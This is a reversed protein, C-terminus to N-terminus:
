YGFAAKQYEFTLKVANVFSVGNWDEKCDTYNEPIKKLVLGRAELEKRLEEGKVVVIIKGNDFEYDELLYCDEGAWKENLHNNRTVIFMNKIQESKLANKTHVIYKPMALQMMKHRSVSKDLYVDPYAESIGTEQEIKYMETIASGVASMPRVDTAFRLKVYNVSLSVLLCCGVFVFNWKMYKTNKQSLIIIISLVIVALIATKILASSINNYSNADNGYRGTDFLLASDITNRWSYEVGNVYDSLWTGCYVILLIGSVLSIIKIKLRFREIRCFLYYLAIFVLISYMPAIYRSYLFRDARKVKEGIVFKYNSGFSFLAGMAVTGFYTLVAYVNIVAEQATLNKKKAVFCVIGVLACVIGLVALGFTGLYTNFLWGTVNKVITEVGEKTFINAYKEYNVNEMTNKKIGSGWINSKFYHTLKKDVWLWVVLNLIYSWMCIGKKKLFFRVMCVIMTVAIVFVIGRSHCMYMYVCSFALLGSMVIRRVTKEEDMAALLIYLTVWAIVILMVDSRAYLSYLVTAPIVSVCLSLLACKSKDEEKLHKRLINYAMVPIIAVFLGNVFMMLKYILYPNSVFKLIPAYFVAQGYKYFYGGTSNVWKNWNNGALFAANAVTGTEDYIYSINLVSGLVVMMALVLVYMLVCIKTDSWEKRNHNKKELEKM